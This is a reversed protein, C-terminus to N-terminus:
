VGECMPIIQNTGRALIQSIAAERKEPDNSMMNQALTHGGSIKYIALLARAAHYRVLKEPDSRAAKQLAQVAQQCRCHWLGLAADMRRSWHPLSGLAEILASLALPAQAIKWLAVAPEVVGAQGRLSQVQKELLPIAQQSHLEGLGVAIRSADGKGQELHELLMQEAAFREETSLLYLSQTDIGDQLDDLTLQGFFARQFRQFAESPSNPDHMSDNEKM